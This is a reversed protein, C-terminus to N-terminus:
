RSTARARRTAWSSFASFFISAVSFCYRWSTSATISFTRELAIGSGAVKNLPTKAGHAIVGLHLLLSIALSNTVARRFRHAFIWASEDNSKANGIRFSDESGRGAQELFKTGFAHQISRERLIRQGPHNNAARQAPQSGDQSM